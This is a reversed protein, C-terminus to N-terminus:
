TCMDYVVCVCNSHQTYLQFIDFACLPTCFKDLAISKLILFSCVEVLDNNIKVDDELHESAAADNEQQLVSNLETQQGNNNEKAFRGVIVRDGLLLSNNRLEASSVNYIEPLLKHLNLSEIVKSLKEDTEKDQSM